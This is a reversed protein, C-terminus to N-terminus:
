RSSDNHNHSSNSDAAASTDLLGSLTTDGGDAASFFFAVNEQEHVEREEVQTVPDLPPSDLLHSNTAAAATIAASKPRLGGPRRTTEKTENPPFQLRLSLFKSKKPKTGSKRAKPRRKKNM